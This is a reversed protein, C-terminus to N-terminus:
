PREVMWPAYQLSIMGEAQQQQNLAFGPMRSLNLKMCSQSLRKELARDMRFSNPRVVTPIVEVLCSQIRGTRDSKYRVLATGISDVREHAFLHRRFFQQRLSDRVSDAITGSQVNVRIPANIELRGRKDYLAAPARPYVAQLCVREAVEILENMDADPPPETQQVPVSPTPLRAECSLPRGERNIVIKLRIVLNAPGQIYPAISEKLAMVFAIQFLENEAPSVAEDAHPASSTCGYLLAFCCTLLPRLSRTLLM